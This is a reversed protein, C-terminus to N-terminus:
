KNKKQDVVRCSIKTRTHKLYYRLKIPAAANATKTLKTVYKIINKADGSKILKKCASQNDIKIPRCHFKM